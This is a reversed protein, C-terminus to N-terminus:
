LCREEEGPLWDELLPAVLAELGRGERTDVVSDARRTYFSEPKQAGMRLRAAEESLGDRKRIRELRVEEPATVALIRACSDDLGAEFLTPADLVM